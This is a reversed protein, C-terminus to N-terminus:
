LGEIGPIEPETGHIIRCRNREGELWQGVLGIRAYYDGRGRQINYTTDTKEDYRTAFIQVSSFRRKLGALADGLWRMDEERIAELEQDTM